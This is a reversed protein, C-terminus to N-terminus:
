GGDGSEPSVGQGRVMADAMRAVRAMEKVDHVRVIDASNAIGIAVASATGEVREEPPLDLTYGVFSKRSPGLLIPRGLVRLESLNALIELNQEVTKGFGIGPDVIIRDREVGAELAVEISERLERIIDGMLNKYEVGRYRGGLRETQLADKPRSRNHMLVLPVQHRAAVEGLHGDMRLGWVDNVLSAGSELAERAVDAKYTDISIPVETHKALTEVVPLVRRLEEEVGVPESGPRTSEGGVDILDAGEGIMRDAQAVAKEVDDGLGDGSFSDPTVNVVGMVYTREGWNFFRGGIHIPKLGEGSHSALAQELESAISVLSQLPQMRLKTILEGYHRLTGLVLVDSEPEKTSYIARSTVVEGGRALMEQKIISAAAFNLGELKVVRFSAKPTMIEIGARSAGIKQMEARIRAPTDLELIRVNFGDTM